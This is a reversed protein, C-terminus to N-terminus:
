FIRLEEIFHTLLDLDILIPFVFGYVAGLFHADHNINDRNRRSMYTSYFLYIV